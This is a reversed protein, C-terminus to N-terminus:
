VKQPNALSRSSSLLKDIAQILAASGNEVGLKAKEFYAAAGATQLKAANSIPLSSLVVVPIHATGPDQKLNAKRLFKSDDILLVTAKM